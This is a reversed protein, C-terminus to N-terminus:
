EMAAVAAAMEVVLGAVTDMDKAAIPDSSKIIRNMEVELARATDSVQPYGFTGGRGALKHARRQLEFLLDEDREDQWVAELRARADGLRQMELSANQCFVGRQAEIERRLVEPNFERSSM